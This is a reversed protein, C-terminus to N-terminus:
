APGQLLRPPRAKQTFHLQSLQSYLSLGEYETVQQTTERENDTVRPGVAGRKSSLLGLDPSLGRNGAM